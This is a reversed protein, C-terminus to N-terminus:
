DLDAARIRRRWEERDGALDATLNLERLDIKINDKWRTRPRGRQRKGEVTISQIGKALNGKRARELHGFWRM